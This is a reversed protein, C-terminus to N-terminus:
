TQLANPPPPCMVVRPELQPGHHHEMTTLLSTQPARPQITQENGNTAQLFNATKQIAGEGVSSM